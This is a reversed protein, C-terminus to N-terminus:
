FEYVGEFRPKLIHTVNLITFQFLPFIAFRSPVIIKLGYAVLTM